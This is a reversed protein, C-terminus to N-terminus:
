MKPTFYLGKLCALIEGNAEMVPASVAFDLTEDEWWEGEDGLLPIFCKTIMPGFTSTAVTVTSDFFEALSGSKLENEGISISYTGIVLKSLTAPTLAGGTSLRYMFGIKRINFKHGTPLKGGSGKFNTKSGAAGVSGDASIFAKAGVVATSANVDIAYYLTKESENYYKNEITKLM